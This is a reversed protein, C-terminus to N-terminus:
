TQFYTCVTNSKVKNRTALSAKDLIQGFSFYITIMITQPQITDFDYYLLYVLTKFLLLVCIIRISRYQNSQMKYQTANRMSQQIYHQKPQIEFHTSMMLLRKIIKDCSKYFCIDLPHNKKM